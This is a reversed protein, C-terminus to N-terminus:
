LLIEYREKLCLFGVKVWLMLCYFKYLLDIFCFEERLIQFARLLHGRTHILLLSM